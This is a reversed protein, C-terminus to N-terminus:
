ISTIGLSVLQSKFIYTEINICRTVFFPRDRTSVFFSYDEYLVSCTLPKRDLSCSWACCFPESYAPSSLFFVGSLSCPPPFPPLPSSLFFSLYFSSFALPTNFGGANDSTALAAPPHNVLLHMQRLGAINRDTKLPRVHASNPGNNERCVCDQQM